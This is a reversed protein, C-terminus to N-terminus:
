LCKLDDKELDKMAELVLKQLEVPLNQIDEHDDFLVDRGIDKSDRMMQVNENAQATGNTQENFVGSYKDADNEVCKLGESSIKSQQLTNKVNVANEKPGKIEKPACKDPKNQHDNEASVSNKDVVEENTHEHYEENAKRTNERHEGGDETGISEESISAGIEQSNTESVSESRSKDVDRWDEDMDVENSGTASYGQLLVDCTKSRGNENELELIRSALVKNTKRQHHLLLNKENLTELLTICIQRLNNQDPHKSSISSTM